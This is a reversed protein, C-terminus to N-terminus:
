PLAGKEGEAAVNFFVGAMQIIAYHRNAETKHCCIVRFGDAAAAMNIWQTARYGFL